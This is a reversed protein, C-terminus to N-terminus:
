GPVTVRDSLPGALREHHFGHSEVFFRPEISQAQRMGAFQAYGFSELAESCAMQLHFARDVVGFHVRSRPRELNVEISNRIGVQDFVYTFVLLVSGMLHSLLDTEADAQDRVEICM